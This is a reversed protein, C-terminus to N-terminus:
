IGEEPGSPAQAPATSGSVRHRWGVLLVGAVALLIGIGITRLGISM